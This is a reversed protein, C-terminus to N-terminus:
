CRAHEQGGHEAHRRPRHAVRLLLRLLVVALGAGRGGVRRGGVEVRHGDHVAHGCCPRVDTWMEDCGSGNKDSFGGLTDWLLHKRQTPFHVLTPGQDAAAACGVSRSGACRSGSGADGRGARRVRAQRPYLTRMVGHTM